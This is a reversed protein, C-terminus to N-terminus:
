HMQIAWLSGEKISSGIVMKNKKFSFLSKIISVWTVKASQDLLLCFVCSSSKEVNGDQRMAVAKLAGLLIYSLFVFCNLRMDM